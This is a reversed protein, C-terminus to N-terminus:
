VIGAEHGGIEACPEGCGFSLIEYTAGVPADLGPCNSSAVYASVVSTVSVTSAM